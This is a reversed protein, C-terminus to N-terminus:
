SPKEKSPVPPSSNLVELVKQEFLSYTARGEHFYRMRGRGDYIFTAPIAGSWRPSFADIFKMDDGTKLYTPFDVGHDALFRRAVPLQDDFDASVLVLELGRARYTRSLRMLDPFEERCPACWTAWVNVLVVQGKTKRVVGLIEEATAPKVELGAGTASSPGPRTGRSEAAPAESAATSDNPQSRAAPSPGRGCASATLVLLGILYALRIM